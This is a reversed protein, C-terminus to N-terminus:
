VQEGVQSGRIMGPSPMGRSESFYKSVMTPCVVLRLPKAEPLAGAFDSLYRTRCRAATPASTPAGLTTTLPGRIAMGKTDAISVIIRFCGKPIATLQLRDGGPMLELMLDPM